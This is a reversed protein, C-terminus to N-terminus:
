FSKPLNSTPGTGTTANAGFDFSDSGKEKAPSAHKEKMKLALGRMREGFSRAADTKMANEVNLFGGPRNVWRVRAAHRIEGDKEYEELEVVIEVDNADLGHLCTDAFESVDEGTWGMLYLSQLTRENTNETFYGTWRVLVGAHPGERVKFYLELYPTGKNASEGLVCAGSARALYNGSTISM